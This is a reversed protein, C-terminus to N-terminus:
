PMPAGRGTAGAVDRKPLNVTNTAPGIGGGGGQCIDVLGTGGVGVTMEKKPKKKAVRWGSHFHKANRKRPM